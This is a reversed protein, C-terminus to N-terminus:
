ATTCFPKSYRAPRHPFPDASVRHGPRAELNSARLPAPLDLQDELVWTVQKKLPCVYFLRFVKKKKQILMMEGYLLMALLPQSDTQRQYKKSHIM